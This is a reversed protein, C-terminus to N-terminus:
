EAQQRTRESRKDVAKQAANGENRIQEFATAIKGSFGKFIYVALAAFLAIRIIVALSRPVVKSVIKGAIVVGAIMLAILGMLKLLPLQRSLWGDSNADPMQDPVDTVAPSNGGQDTGGNQGLANNQQQQRKDKLSKLSEAREQRERVKTKQELENESVVVVSARYREPVSKLDNTVTVGGSEDYYRYFAASVSWPSAIFLLVALLTTFIKMM